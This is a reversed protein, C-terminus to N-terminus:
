CSVDVGEVGPLLRLSKAIQALSATASPRASLEVIQKHAIYRIRLTTAGPLVTLVQRELDDLRTGHRLTVTVLLNRGLPPQQCEAPKVL